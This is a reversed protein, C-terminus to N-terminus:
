VIPAIHVGILAHEPALSTLVVGAGPLQAGFVIAFAGGPFGTHIDRARTQAGSSAVWAPHGASRMAVGVVPRGNVVFVYQM